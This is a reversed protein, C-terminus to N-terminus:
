PGNNFSSRRISKLKLFYPLIFTESSDDNPRRCCGFSTANTYRVRNLHSVRFWVATLQPTFVYYFFTLYRFAQKIEKVIAQNRVGKRADEKKKRVKKDQHFSHKRKKKKQIKIKKKTSVTNVRKKEWFREKIFEWSLDQRM